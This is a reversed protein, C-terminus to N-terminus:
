SPLEMRTVRPLSLAFDPGFLRGPTQFGPEIDGALVRRVVAVAADATVSYVGPTRLLARRCGDDGVMEAWITVETSPEPPSINMLDVHARLVTRGWAPAPALAAARNVALALRLAPTAEFLVTIDPAGTSFYGTVLDGWSVPLASRTTEGVRVVREGTGPAVGILAGRRRVRVLRGYERVMTRASGRSPQGMGFIALTLQRPRRMGRAVHVALCDSPVVDFGVGPMALVGSARAAAHQSAAWQLSALEGSLDLYHVKGALARLLLPPTTDAFPGAANLLVKARGLLADLGERDSLQVSVHEVSLETALRALALADRGALIPTLGEAVARRAVLEGAYGTAGYLVFSASPSM